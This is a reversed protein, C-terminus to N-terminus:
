REARVKLIPLNLNMMAEFTWNTPYNFYSRIEGFIVKPKHYYQLICAIVREFSMRNYRNTVVPLLNQFNHLEDIKRLFNHEIITMCGYCGIWNKKDAHLKLLERNNNLSKLIRREDEPQDCHHEFYWLISYKDVNAFDLKERIFVSDHLIMAKDFWKNRSYYYYPLLEGRGAFESQIIIVNELSKKSLFSTDSNDDIIVIQTTPYLKRISNYCEIWYRNSSKSNVHRLMIFGFNNNESM